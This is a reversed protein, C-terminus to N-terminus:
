VGFIEYNDKFDIDLFIKFKLSDRTLSEIFEIVQLDPHGRGSKRYMM